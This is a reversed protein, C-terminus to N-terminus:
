ERLLRTGGLIYPGVTHQPELKVLGYRLKSVVTGVQGNAEVLRLAPQQTNMIDASDYTCRGLVFIDLPNKQLSCLYLSAKGGGGEDSFLQCGEPLCSFKHNGM